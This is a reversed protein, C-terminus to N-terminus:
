TVHVSRFCAGYQLPESSLSYVKRREASECCTSQRVGSTGLIPGEKEIWEGAYIHHPENHM